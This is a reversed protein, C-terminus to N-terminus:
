PAHDTSENEAGAEDSGPRDRQLAKGPHDVDETDEQDRGAEPQRHALDFRVRVRVEDQTQNALDDRDARAEVALPEEDADVSM